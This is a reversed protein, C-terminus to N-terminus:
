EGSWLPRPWLKKGQSSKFISSGSCGRWFWQLPDLDWSKVFGGGTLALTLGPSSVVRRRSHNKPLHSTWRPANHFCCCYFLMCPQETLTNEAPAPHPRAGTSQSRKRTSELTRGQNLVHSLPEASSSPTPSVPSAAMSCLVNHVSLYWM